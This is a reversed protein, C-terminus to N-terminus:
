LHNAVYTDLWSIQLPEVLVHLLNVMLIMMGFFYKLFRQTIFQCNLLLIHINHHAFIVINANLTKENSLRDQM